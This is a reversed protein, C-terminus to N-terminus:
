SENSLPDKYLQIKYSGANSPTYSFSGHETTCDELFEGLVPRKDANSTDAKRLLFFCGVGQVTFDMKGGNKTGPCGIMPVALTRRGTEGDLRCDSDGTNDLCNEVAADYADADLADEAAVTTTSEGVTITTDEFTVKGESDYTFNNLNEKIYVDSPYDDASLKSGYDDFRTNLGDMAGIKNGTESTVDALSGITICGSYDGALTAEVTSAGSGFDLLQFNGKGMSSDNAASYKLAYAQGEDYGMFDGGSSACVAMPVVNCVESMGSSPGAVASVTIETDKSSFVGIFYNPIDFNAIEVRVYIDKTKDFTAPPFDEADNSYTINVTAKSFDLSDYGGSGGTNTLAEYVATDIATTDSTTDAVVAGALTASDVANQLRAKNLVLNNVDIALSALGVIVALSVTLMVAVFGGQRNTRCTVLGHPMNGGLLGLLRRESICNVGLISVEVLELSTVCYRTNYNYM